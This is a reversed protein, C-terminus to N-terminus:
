PKRKLALASQEVADELYSQYFDPLRAGIIPAHLKRGGPGYFAVVPVLRIKEAAAFAAHTTARGAFDTLPANSDQAVERIVVRGAYRPDVAMPGLFDRKITKCFSCDARSYIVILPGGAKAAQRAESDLQSALPLDAAGSSAVTLCALILGGVLVRWSKWSQRM